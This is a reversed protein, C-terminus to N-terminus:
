ISCAAWGSCSVSHRSGLFFGRGCRLMCVRMVFMAAACVVAALMIVLMSMRMGVALVAVVVVIMRVITAAAAMVVAVAGPVDIHIGRRPGHTVLGRELAGDLAQLGHPM